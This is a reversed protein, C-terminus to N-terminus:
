LRGGGGGCGGGGAGYGGGGAGCGGWLRGMPVKCGQAAIVRIDAPVRDGGKIEVLDGVVIEAANLQAKEGDRIM